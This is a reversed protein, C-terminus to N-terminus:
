QANFFRKYIPKRWLFQLFMAPYMLIDLLLYPTQFHICDQIISEQDSVRIIHHKHYWRRLFFPLKTGEDVFYFADDSSKTATVVSIWEDKFLLFDLVLHTKMDLEIGGFEILNMKPFPPALVRFLSEDFRKRVSEHHANIRTDIVIKM